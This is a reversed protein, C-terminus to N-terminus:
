WCMVDYLRWPNSELPSMLPPRLPDDPHPWAPMRHIIYSTYSRYQNLLVISPPWFWRFPPAAPRRPFLVKLPRQDIGSWLDSVVRGANCRWRVAMTMQADDRYICEGVVHVFHCVEVLPALFCAFFSTKGACRRAPADFASVFVVRWPFKGINGKPRLKGASSCFYRGSIEFFNLLHCGLPRLCVLWVLDM